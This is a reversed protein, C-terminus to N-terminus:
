AAANQKAFHKRGLRQGRRMRAKRLKELCAFSIVTFRQDVMLMRVVNKGFKSHIVGDRETESNLLFNRPQKIARSNALRSEPRYGVHVPCRRRFQRLGRQGMM